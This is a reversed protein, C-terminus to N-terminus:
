EEDFNIVYRKHAEDFWAKEAAVRKKWLREAAESIGTGDEDFNSSFIRNIKYTLRIKDKNEIIIDHFENGLGKNPPTAKINQIFYDGVNYNKLYSYDRSRDYEINADEWLPRLRLACEKGDFRIFTIVVDKGNEDDIDSLVLKGNAVDESVKRNMSINIM